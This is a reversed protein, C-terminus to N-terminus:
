KIKQVKAEHFNLPLGDEAMPTMVPV